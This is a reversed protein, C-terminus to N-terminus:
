RRKYSMGMPLKFFCSQPCVTDFCLCGLSWIFHKKEGWFKEAALSIVHDSGVVWYSAARSRELSPAGPEAHLLGPEHTSQPCFRWVKRCGAHPKRLQSCLVRPHKMPDSSRMRPCWRCEQMHNIPNFWGHAGLGPREVHGQNLLIWTEQKSLGHDGGKSKYYFKENWAESIRQTGKRYVTSTFAREMFVSGPLSISDPVVPM